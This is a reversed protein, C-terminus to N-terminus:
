MEKEDGYRNPITWQEIQAENIVKSVLSAATQPQSYHPHGEKQKEHLWM